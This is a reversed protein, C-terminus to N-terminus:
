LSGGKLWPIPYSSFQPLLNRDLLLRSIAEAEWIAGNIAKHPKPETPIGVYEMVKDSNLDSKRNRTPPTIGRATMHAFALTHQDISRQALPFDIQNRASAAQIFGIDFLPNHGAITINEKGELWVFFSEVAERESLKAPDKIDAESYGNVALAEQEVRAGDWIRCEKYFQETPNNFDVAGISVISHVDPNTGTTEVDLVIM